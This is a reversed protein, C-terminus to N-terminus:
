IWTTQTQLHSDMYHQDANIELYYLVVQVPVPVQRAFIGPRHNAPKVTVLESYVMKIISFPFFNSPVPKLWDKTGVDCEVAKPIFLQFKGSFM